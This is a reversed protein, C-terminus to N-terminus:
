GPLAAAPCRCSAFRVGALYRSRMARRDRADASQRTWPRLCSTSHTTQRTSSGAVRVFRAFRPQGKATLSTFSYTVWSGIAPPNRRQEDSFGTGLLFQLGDPREVRLAGMMGEYKGKGPLHGVVRAEADLTPKLKLLDDSRGAVYYSDGHHLMLGEGGADVIERLKRELSDRDAVRFQTVVEAPAVLHLKGLAALRQDFTGPHAPLDFVMYRVARWGDEDPIVDRVTRALAEFQGRGTWLEGDLPVDPLNATFWGPAPVANGNRTVLESGNWYARIGDYKESVWYKPLDADERFINALLLPPANAAFPIGSPLVSGVLSLVVLLKRM